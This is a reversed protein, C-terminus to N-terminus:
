KNWCNRPRGDFFSTEASTFARISHNSVHVIESNRVPEDSGRITRFVQRYQDIDVAVGWLPILTQGYSSNFSYEVGQTGVIVNVNITVSVGRFLDYLAEFVTQNLRWRFIDLFQFYCRIGHLVLFHWFIYWSSKPGRKLNKM